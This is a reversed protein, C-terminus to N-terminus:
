KNGAIWVPRTDRVAWRCTRQVSFVGYRSPV